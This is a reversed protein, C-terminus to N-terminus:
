SRQKWEVTHSALIGDPCFWQRQRRREALGADGRVPGDDIATTRELSRKEFHTESLIVKLVTCARTFARAPVRRRVWPQLQWLTGGHNREHTGVLVGACLIARTQTM